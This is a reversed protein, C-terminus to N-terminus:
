IEIGEKEALRIITPRSKMKEFEEPTLCIFDVPYNLNWSRYMDPVREYSKIGRFKDSVVILDFDSDEGFNKGIRSGFLILKRIPLKKRILEKFAKVIRLNKEKDM